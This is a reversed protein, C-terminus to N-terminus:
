TKRKLRKLQRAQKKLDSRRARRAIQYRKWVIKGERNWKGRNRYSRQKYKKSPKRKIM